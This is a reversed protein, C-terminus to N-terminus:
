MMNGCAIREIIEPQHYAYVDQLKCDFCIAKVKDLYYMSRFEQPLVRLAKSFYKCSTCDM